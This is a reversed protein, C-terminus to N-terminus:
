KDMREEPGRGRVEPGGRERKLPGERQPCDTPYCRFLVEVNQKKLIKEIHLFFNKLPLTLVEVNDPVDQWLSRNFCTCFLVFRDHPHNLFLANLLGHLLITIGGSESLTVSRLEVAIRM